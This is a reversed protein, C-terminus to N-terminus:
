EEKDFDVKGYIDEFKPNIQAALSEPWRVGIGTVLKVPKTNLKALGNVIQTYFFQSFLGGMAERIKGHVYPLERGPSEPTVDRVDSHMIVVTHCPFSHMLVIMQRVKIAINGAWKRADMLASANTKAQHMWIIESLSTITDLMVTKWPCRQMLCNIVKVTNSWPVSDATPQYTEKLVTGSSLQSFDILSIPALQNSPLKTEAEFDDIHIKKVPEKVVSMGDNDFQLCLLPQPYTTAVAGTKWTKPPGFRAERILKKM